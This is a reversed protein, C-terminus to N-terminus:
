DTDYDKEPFRKARILEALSPLCFRKSVRDYIGLNLVRWILFANIPSIKFILPHLLLRNIKKSKM